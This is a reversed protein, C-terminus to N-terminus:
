GFFFSDSRNRVEDVFREAVYRHEVLKKDGIKLISEEISSVYINLFDNVESKSKLASTNLTSLKIKDIKKDRAHSISEIAKSRQTDVMGLDRLRFYVDEFQSVFEEGSSYRILEDRVSSVVDKFGKIERSALYKVETSQIDFISGLIEKDNCGCFWAVMPFKKILSWRNFIERDNEYQLIEELHHFSFFPIYGKQIFYDIFGVAQNKRRKDNCYYDKALDGFIYTDISIIKTFIM